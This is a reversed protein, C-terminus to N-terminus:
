AGFYNVMWNLRNSLWTRLFSVNASYTSDPTREWKTTATSVSWGTYWYNSNIANQYQSCFTDIFNGSGSYFSAITPKLQTLREKVMTKFWDCEMLKGFWTFRTAYVGKAGTSDESFYGTGSYYDYGPNGMSLDFDWPPGAYLVGDKLYFWKSSISADIDKCYELLIYYDVFSTLDMVASIKTKDGTELAVEVANIKNNIAKVQEVTSDDCHEVGLCLQYTGTYFYAVDSDHRELETDLQLLADGNDYDIDVKQKGVDISEVLMYCGRNVGNVIVEVVRYDSSYGFNMQKALSLAIANRMLTKDLANALLTWKKATVMGLLSRKASLKFNYPKKNLNATSNGRVKIKSNYDSFGAYSDGQAGVVMVTAEEYSVKSIDDIATKVTIFVRPVDTQNYEGNNLRNQYEQCYADIAAQTLTGRKANVDAIFQKFETIFSETYYDDFYPIDKDKLSDWESYDVVSYDYAEWKAYVTCDYDVSITNEVVKKETDGYGTYWGLFTDDNRTPEDLTYVTGIVCSYETEGSYEGENTDITLTVYLDANAMKTVFDAEALTTSPNHEAFIDYASISEDSTEESVIAFQMTSKDTLTLTYKDIYTNFAEKAVKSIRVGSRRKGKADYEDGNLSACAERLANYGTSCNFEDSLREYAAQWIANNYNDTYTVIEDGKKQMTCGVLTFLVVGSMATALVKSFIKETKESFKKL